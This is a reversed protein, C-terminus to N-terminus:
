FIDKLESLHDIVVINDKIPLNSIFSNNNKFWIAQMGFKIAPLIDNELDDGIYAIKEKPYGSVKQAYSFIKEDPKPFGIDESSVLIKFYKDIGSSNLKALQTKRFGNTLIGLKYKGCLYELVDKAGNILMEQKSLTDLYVDNIEQILSENYEIGLTKLTLDFRLLKLEEQSIEKKRYSDWLQTNIKQYTSIFAETNISNLLNRYNNYVLRLASKSNNEFDWLTHDLDFYIMKIMDRNLSEM